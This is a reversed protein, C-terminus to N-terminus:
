EDKILAQFKEKYENIEKELEEIDGEINLGRDWIVSKKAKEYKQFLEYFLVELSLLTM